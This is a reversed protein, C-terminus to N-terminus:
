RSPEWIYNGDMDIYGFTGSFFDGFAVHAVGNEDFSYAWDYRAPIVIAGETNIYGRQGTKYDGIRFVARGESFDYVWDFATDIVEDGETNIYGWKGDKRVAALGESFPRIEEYSCDAIIHAGRDIVGYGSEDAVISLGNEDFPYMITYVQPLLVEGSSDLVAYKRSRYSRGSWVKFLNGPLPEIGNYEAEIVTRGDGDKVGFFGNELFVTFGDRYGFISFSDEILVTNGDKDFVLSIDSNDEKTRAIFFDGKEVLYNYRVPIIIKGSLSVVGRKDGLKAIFLGPDSTQYLYDYVPKIAFSGDATIVGMKREKWSGYGVPARGDVFDYAVTFEAETVLVGDRNIYGQKGDIVIVALDGFFHYARDYDFGTIFTGDTGVFARKAEGYNGNYVVTAGNHFQYIYDYEPATVFNGEADIAGWKGNKLIRYATEGEASLLGATCLIFMLVMFVKKM